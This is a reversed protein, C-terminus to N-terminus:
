AVAPEREARERPWSSLELPAPDFRGWGMRSRVKRAAKRYAPLHLYSAHRDSAVHEVGGSVDPTPSRRLERLRAAGAPDSAETEIACAILDAMEDFLGYAGGDGETFGIGYLDDRRPSLLHLYLQPRGGRWDFLEEDVYPISFRFGTAFVILDIRERSGDAFLVEDGDLRGVDPKVGLDGHSLHHLIQTNLIPHSEFLRHDPEPLGYREPRGIQLRILRPIVRQAIAMPLDPGSDAFVDAPIGFLHKPVIHYGRRMSIWAADAAQAADCAIDVGSNGAGVVLVRRGRLTSISRYESSHITEGALEGELRPRTPHWTTGNACVLNDYRRREGTDLLVEWGGGPQPEAREVGTSFTIRERLGYARAFDRIYTLVDSHHPYDPLEEPMPYGHFGSMSRSSIFHASDYIPSGPNDQDWIGGLDHHREFCDFELGHRILARAMALGAPGAGVVCTPSAGDGDRGDLLAM